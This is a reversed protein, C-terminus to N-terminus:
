KLAMQQDLIGANGTCVSDKGLSLFGFVGVRYNPVVVVVDNLGALVSADYDVESGM